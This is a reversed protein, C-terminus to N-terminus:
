RYINFYRRKPGTGKSEGNVQKIVWCGKNKGQTELTVIEKQKLIEFVRNWLNSLVIHSEFNLLDYRCKMRWCTKLQETLVRTTIKSAFEAIHSSGEEIERPGARREKELSPDNQYVENTKVYVEDGCYHDFKTFKDPSEFPFKLFMFGVVLDAVQLGLNDIYNLVLVKHNTAQLIRYITDGLVINRLHGVHLAKNPNVSTHEITIRSGNGYDNFGYTLNKELVEKLTM